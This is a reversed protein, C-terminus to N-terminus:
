LHRFLSQHGLSVQKVGESPHTLLQEMMSSKAQILWQGDPLLKRLLYVKAGDTIWDGPHFPKPNNKKNNKTARGASLVRNLDNGDVKKKGKKRKTYTLSLADHPHTLVSLPKGQSQRLRASESRYVNVLNLANAEGGRGQMMDTNMYQLQGLEIDNKDSELSTFPTVDKFFPKGPLAIKQVQANYRDEELERLHPEIIKEFEVDVPKNAQQTPYAAKSYPHIKASYIRRVRGVMHYPITMPESSGLVTIEPSPTFVLGMLEAYLGSNILLKPNLIKKEQVDIRLLDRLVTKEKNDISADGSNGGVVQRIFSVTGTISAFAGQDKLWLTIEVPVNQVKIDIPSIRDKGQKTEPIPAGYIVVEIDSVRMTGRAWARQAPRVERLFPPQTRADAPTEGAQLKKKWSASPKGKWGTRTPTDNDPINKESVYLGERGGTLMMHGQRLNEPFEVRKDVPTGDKESNPFYRLSIANKDGKEKM